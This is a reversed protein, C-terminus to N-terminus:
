RHLNKHDTRAAPLVRKAPLQRLAGPRRCQVSCWAIRAHRLDRSTKWCRVIQIRRFGDIGIERHHTRFNRESRADHIPEALLPTRM